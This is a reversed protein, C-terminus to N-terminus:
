PMLSESIFRDPANPPATAPDIMAARINTPRLREAIAGTLRIKIKVPNVRNRPLRSFADFLAVSSSFGVVGYM